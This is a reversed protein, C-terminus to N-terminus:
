QKVGNSNFKTVFFDFSGTLANGDLAGGTAGAVFVNGSADIAVGNGDTERGAVGLQRTFQKVGNSNYKTVFFDDTGALANGDLAGGTAGAVFVNGSADIAVEHGSTAAGVAGLQRTFQKVGNGTYKAVFFDQTGTLTNGDLGGRTRGTVYVNGSVDTAVATGVTSASVAGLQRTFQKVGSNNYKAVFFDNLGTLSNGDLSGETYGAVFVNGSADTSVGYGRTERGAVGLLRTFQKIGESNYKSYFADVTGTMTYGDLAGTTYGAIFFNGSADIAVSIGVKKEGAVGLQRTFTRVGSSNYKTVFFDHTGGTMTHGDLGGTTYGVVYVNDYADTAVATGVTERGAVGSQHTFQKVGNSNYKTIFSDFTSGKKTNGDLGGKTSGTVYVNGSRDTAVANGYTIQNAVGLQKTGVWSSTGSGAVGSPTSSEGGDCAAVLILATTRLISSFRKM